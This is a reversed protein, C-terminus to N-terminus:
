TSSKGEDAKSRGRKKNEQRSLLHKSDQRWKKNHGRPKSEFEDNDKTKKHAKQKADNRFAAQDANAQQTRFFQMCQAHTDTCLSRGAQAYFHQWLEPMADHFAQNLQSATLKAETVPSKLM